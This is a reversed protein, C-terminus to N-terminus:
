IEHSSSLDLQIRRDISPISRVWFPSLNVTASEVGRLGQLYGEAEAQPRGAVKEKLTDLSFDPVTTHSVRVTLAAEEKEWDISSVSKTFSIPGPFLMYDQDLREELAATLRRELEAEEFGMVRVVMTGNYAITDIQQGIEATTTLQESGFTWSEELLSWGKPLQDRIEEEASQRAANGAAERTKALDEEQVIKVQQGSGGTLPRNVEAYLISAASDDLAAFTLRGSDINGTEGPEAAEVEVTATGNPAVIAHRQMYFLVGDGTVLRSQEKIPQEETTRNVITVVGSAKEGVVQTSVVPITGDIQVERVFAAGPIVSADATQRNALVLQQDILLPATQLTLAIEAKPLFLVAALGVLLLVVLAFVAMIRREKYGLRASTRRAEKPEPTAFLPM